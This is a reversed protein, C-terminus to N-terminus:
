EHRGGRMLQAHTQRELLSGEGPRLHGMISFVAEAADQLATARAALAALRVQRHSLNSCDEPTPASDVSWCSCGDWREVSVAMEAMRVTERHQGALIPSSSTM